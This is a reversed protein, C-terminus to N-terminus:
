AKRRRIFLAAGPIATGVLLALTGPEPTTAGTVRIFGARLSGIEVVNGDFDSLSTNPFGALVVPYPGSASGSVDFVVHGLGVTVGAGVTTGSSPISFIDSADMTQGPSSTGINPGFLGLGDFIYPATTTATTVGTFTIDTSNTALEFSFGGIQVAGATSNTLTVDLGGGTDGANAAVSEVSVIIQADARSFSLFALATLALLRTLLFSPKSLLSRKM